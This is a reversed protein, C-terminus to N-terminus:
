LSRFGLVSVNDFILASAPHVQQPSRPRRSRWDLLPQSPLNVHTSDSSYSHHILTQAQRVEAWPKPPAHMKEVVDAPLTEAVQYLIGEGTCLDSSDTYTTLRLRDYMSGIPCDQKFWPSVCTDVDHM